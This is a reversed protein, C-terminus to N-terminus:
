YLIKIGPILAKIEERNEESITNGRLDLITLKQLHCITDPIKTIKNGALSLVTLSTMKYIGRPLATLKNNDLNLSELKQMKELNEPIAQLNCNKLSLIKLNEIRFPPRPCSDLIVSELILTNLSRMFKFNKTLKLTDDTSSFKFIKLRQLFAINNPISDIKTGMLELYMMNPFNRLDPFAPLPNGVSCFY